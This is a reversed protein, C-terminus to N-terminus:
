INVLVKQCYQPYQHGPVKAGPCWYGSHQCFLVDAIMPALGLGYILGVM